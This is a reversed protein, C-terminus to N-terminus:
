PSVLAVSGLATELKLTLTYQATGFAKNVYGNDDMILGNATVSVLGTEMEIRVGMEEPLTVTIEGVGGNITVNLDHNLDGSLDVNTIGAGSDIRLGTLDLEHLDLESEGAGTEIELDIPVADSLLLEWENVLAGGLPISSDEDQHEVELDGQNGNVSYNVRPQWASVNYRFNADMLNGAGGAVSLEGAGMSIRIKVQNASGVEVTQTETRIEGVAARRPLLGCSLTLLWMALIGAIWHYSRKKLNM